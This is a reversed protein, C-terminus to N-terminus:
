QDVGSKRASLGLAIINKDEGTLQTVAVKYGPINLNRKKLASGNKIHMVLADKEYKLSKLQCGCGTMLREVAMLGAIPESNLSIRQTMLDSLKKEAEVRIDSVAPRKGQFLRSYSQTLRNEM